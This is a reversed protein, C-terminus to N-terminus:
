CKSSELKKQSNIKNELLSDYIPPCKLLNAVMYSVACVVVIPGLQEMAGSMEFILIFGTIPARVVSAFMGAMALLVFNNIFVPEVGITFVVIKIFILGVLGGLTLIPFLIGGPTGPAFSILSFVYKGILLIIAIKVTVGSEFINNMLKDGGGLVQPLFMGFIIAFMFPIIMKYRISIKMKKYIDITKLLGKNYIVGCLGTLIGLLILILYYNAPMELLKSVNLVNKEGFFIWTVLDASVCSFVSTLFLMPSFSKHVEELVFMVGAFPANFAAALGAGAGSSYLYRQEKESLKLKYSMGHAFSAGLQISPGEIGLSLGSGMALVGNIFKSVLIRFSHLIKLKGKLYGEIQPIGSGSIMPNKELSYGVIYGIISFLGVGLIIYAYHNSMFEYANISIKGAYNACLRYLSVIFGSFVGVLISKLILKIKFVNSNDDVNNMTNNELKDM